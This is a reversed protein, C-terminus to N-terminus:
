YKGSLKRLWKHISHYTTGPTVYMVACTGTRLDVGRERAVELAEPTDRQMHVWVDKVGADAARGVWHATEDKPVEIVVANVADPLEELDHYCRDGEVEDASPDVAFVTKGMAKLGRYTLKPFAKAGHGVVAFRDHDFFTEYHSRPM